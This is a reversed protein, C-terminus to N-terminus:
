RSRRRIKRKNKHTAFYAFLAATAMYCVCNILAGAKIDGSSLIIGTSMAGLTFILSGITACWMGFKRASVFASIAASIVTAAISATKVLSMPDSTCYATATATLCVAPLVGLSILACLLIKYINKMESSNKKVSM